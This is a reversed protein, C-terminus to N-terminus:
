SESDVAWNRVDLRKWLCGYSYSMNQLRDDSVNTLVSKQWRHCIVSAPYLDYRYPHKHFRRSTLFQATSESNYFLAEPLPFFCIFINVFHGRIIVKYIRFVIRMKLWILMFTTELIKNTWKLNTICRWFTVCNQHCKDLGRKITFYKGNM